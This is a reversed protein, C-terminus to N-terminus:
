EMGMKQHPRRSMMRNEPVRPQVGTEPRIARLKKKLGTVPKMSMSEIREPLLPAKREAARWRIRGAMTSPVMGSATTARWVREAM